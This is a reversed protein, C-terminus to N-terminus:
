SGKKKKQQQPENYHCKKGACIGKYGQKLARLEFSGDDVINGAIFIRSSNDYITMTSRSSSRTPTTSTLATTLRLLPLRAIWALSLMLLVGLDALVATRLRMVTLRLARLAMVLSLVMAVMVTMVAMMMVVMVTTRVMMMMVMVTTRVLMMVMVRVMRVVSVRLVMALALMLVRVMMRLMLVLLRLLAVRLLVAALRVLLRRRLLLAGRVLDVLRLVGVALQRVRLLALKAVLLALRILLARPDRQLAALLERRRM